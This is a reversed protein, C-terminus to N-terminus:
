KDTIRDLAQCAENVNNNCAQIYYVKAKTKNKDVGIGEEHLLGLEYCASAHHNKCAEQLMSVQSVNSFLATSIFLFFFINKM